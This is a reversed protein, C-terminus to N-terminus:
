GPFDKMTEGRYPRRLNLVCSQIMLYFIPVM